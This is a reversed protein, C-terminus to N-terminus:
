KKLLNTADVERLVDSLGSISKQGLKSVADSSCLGDNEVGEGVMRLKILLYHILRELLYGSVLILKWIGALHRRM